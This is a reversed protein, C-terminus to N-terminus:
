RARQRYFDLWEKGTEKNLGALATDIESKPPKGAKERAVGEEAMVETTRGWDRTALGYSIAAYYWIRADDPQSQLLKRFVDYAARYQKDRFRSVGSDYTSDGSEAKESASPTHEAEDSPSSNSTRSASRDRSPFASARNGATPMEKRLEQVKGDLDTLKQESQALRGPLPDLKKGITDMQQSLQDVRDVKQELPALDPSPSPKPIAELRSQVDKFQGSLGNIRLELRALNEEIQSDKAKPASDAPPKEVKPKALFREYAWAGAGGFLLALVSSTVIAAGSTTGPRAAPKRVPPPGQAMDVKVSRADGAGHSEQGRFEPIPDIPARGAMGQEGANAM